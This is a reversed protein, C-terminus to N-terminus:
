PNSGKDLGQAKRNQHASIFGIGLFILYFILTGGLVAGTILLPNM